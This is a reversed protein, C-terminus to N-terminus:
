NGEIVPHFRCMRKNKGAQHMYVEVPPLKAHETAPRNETQTYFKGQYEFIGISDALPEFPTANVPLYSQDGPKRAHPGETAEKSSGFIVRTRREDITKGDTSLVFARQNVYTDIGVCAAPGPTAGYGQWLLVPLPHGDNAIDVYSHYTWAVTLGKKLDDVVGNKSEPDASFYSKSPDQSNYYSYKGIHFQDDFRMFEWVYRFLPFVQDANLYRRELPEFGPLGSEPRGCFPNAPYESRNLLELYAKCVPLERGQIPTFKPGRDGGVGTEAAPAAIAFVGVTALLILPLPGKPLRRPRDTGSLTRGVPSSRDFSNILGTIRMM